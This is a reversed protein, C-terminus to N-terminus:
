PAPHLSMPRAGRVKPLLEGLAGSTPVYTIFPFILLGVTGSTFLAAQSRMHDAGTEPALYLLRLLPM